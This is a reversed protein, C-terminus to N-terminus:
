DDLSPTHLRCGSPPPLPAHFVRYHVPGGRSLTVQGLIDAPQGLAGETPSGSQRRQGDGVWGGPWRGRQSRILRGVTNARLPAASLCLSKNYGPAEVWASTFRKEELGEGEAASAARCIPKETRVPWRCVTSGSPRGMLGGSHPPHGDRCLLRRPPIPCHWKSSAAAGGRGATGSPRTATQPYSWILSQTPLINKDVGGKREWIPMPNAAKIHRKTRPQSRRWSTM